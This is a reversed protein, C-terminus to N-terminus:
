GLPQPLPARPSWKDTAPDYASVDAFADANQLTFGGIAYLKGDL